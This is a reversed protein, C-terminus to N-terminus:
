ETVVLELVLYIFPKLRKELYIQKLNTKNKVGVKPFSIANSSIKGSTNFCWWSWFRVFSWGGLKKEILFDLSPCLIRAFTECSSAVSPGKSRLFPVRQGKPGYLTWTPWKQQKTQAVKPTIYYLTYTIIYTFTYLYM